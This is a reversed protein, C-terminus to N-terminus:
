AKQQNIFKQFSELQSESQQLFKSFNMEKLQGVKQGAKQVLVGASYMQPEITDGTKLIGFGERKDAKWTGFYVINQKLQTSLGLGEKKDKNWTGIWSQFDDEYRGFGHKVGELTEGLYSFERTVIKGIGGRKEGIIQGEYVTKTIRDDEVGFKGIQDKEWYGFVSM